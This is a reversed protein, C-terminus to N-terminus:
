YKNFIRDLLNRNKLKNIEQEKEKLEQNQAEIKEELLTKEKKKLEIDKELLLRESDIKSAKELMTEYKAHLENNIEQAKILKDKLEQIEKQQDAEALVVPNSKMFQSLYDIAYEDLWTGNSGRREYHGELEKKHKKLHYQITRDTVGKQKAFDQLKIM